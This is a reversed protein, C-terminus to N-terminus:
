IALERDQIIGLGDLVTGIQILEMRTGHVMKLMSIGGLFMKQSQILWIELITM